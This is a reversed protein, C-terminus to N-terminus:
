KRQKHLSKHVHRFETKNRYGQQEHNSRRQLLKTGNLFKQIYRQQKSTQATPDVNSSYTAICNQKWGWGGGLNQPVEWRKQSVYPSTVNRDVLYLMLFLPSLQTINFGADQMTVTCYRVNRKNFDEEIKRTARDICNRNEIVVNEFNTDVIIGLLKGDSIERCNTTLNNSKFATCLQHLPQACDLRTYCLRGQQDRRGTDQINGLLLTIAEQNQDVGDPTREGCVPYQSLDTHCYQPLIIKTVLYWIGLAAPVGCGITGFAISAYTCGSTHSCPTDVDCTFCSTHKESSVIQSSVAKRQDPSHKKIDSGIKNKLLVTSETMEYQENVDDTTHEMTMATQVFFCMYILLFEFIMYEEKRGCKDITIKEM